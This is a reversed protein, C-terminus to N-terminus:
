TKLSCRLRSPRYNLVNLALNKNGEIPIETPPKSSASGAAFPRTRTGTELAHVWVGDDQIPKPWASKGSVWPRSQGTNPVVLFKDSQTKRGTM